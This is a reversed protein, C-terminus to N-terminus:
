EFLLVSPVERPMAQRLLTYGVGAMGHFLSPSFLESGRAASLAYGGTERARRVIRAVTAGSAERYREEGLGLYASLLAEARGCQGCCLDDAEELPLDHELDRCLEDLAGEIEARIEASDELPLGAIKGLAIGATGHCWADSFRQEAPVDVVDDAPIPELDALTGSWWWDKWTGRRPQYRAQFVTRLDEWKHHEPSYLGRIFDQGEQEAQWLDPEGTEGYLRLLALCIGAAGYSFGALPIKGPSLAWARPRGDFSIRVSLLHDACARALDLAKKGRRNAGPRRAHLALLALLAGASGTQVRVREDAAIREPTILSMAEHADDVLEPEELLGGIALLGYLFSGVGFLGGLWVNFRSEREPDALIAALQRRLPAMADLSLQRFDREGSVRAFAALFLAIGTTGGHLDRGAQQFVLPSLETGYGTPTMWTVNGSKTLRRQARIQQAIAAAEELLQERSLPSIGNSAMTRM